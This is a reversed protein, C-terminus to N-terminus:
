SAGEGTVVVQITKGIIKIDKLINWERIYKVDLAVVDEFDTISNRGSVQWLGTVGPKMSLRARHELSYQEWEDVTPPRTGVVSMEGRLVNFFQPLEDLSYKRMFRGIPIIRPDNDMKFMFGSMKNQKMLEAKRADADPYMSRFKYMRFKRGNLGVRTQSYFVPGPSQLVIVPAFIVFVVGTVLLGALATVIDCLRKLLMQEPNFPQVTSALVIQEALRDMHRNPLLDLDIMGDLSIYITMGASILKQLLDRDYALSGDALLAEDVEEQQLFRYLAERGRLLPIGDIERSGDEGTSSEGGAEAQQLVAAAAIRFQREGNKRYYATQEAVHGATTLLMLRPMRDERLLRRNLLSKYATRCVTLLLFALLLFLGFVLRSLQNSIKSIYNFFSILVALALVFKATQTCEEWFTRRLISRHVPLFLGIAAAAAILGILTSRYVPERFLIRIPGPRFACALLFAAATVCIDLITFDLHKIWQKQTRM